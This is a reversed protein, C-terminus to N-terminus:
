IEVSHAHSALVTTALEDLSAIVHDPTVGSRTKAVDDRNIWVGRMGMQQAGWVDRIINDGIMLAQETGVGLQDLASQFVRADPKGVGVEGSVVIADFYGALDAGAIKARQVDPAGNTVIALRFHQRLRQLVALAEPFLIFLERRRRQFTQMLTSALAADTIDFEALAGNWVDQQYCPMWAALAQLHPDDGAFNGWMGEWSSIGIQQCYPHTPAANWLQHAQRRVAVTLDAPAVAYRAQALASAEMLAMDTSAIDALITEDLDFLLATYTM